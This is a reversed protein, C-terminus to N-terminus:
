SVYDMHVSIDNSFTKSKDWKPGIQGVKPGFIVGSFVGALRFSKSIGPHNELSQAAENREITERSKRETLILCLVKMEICLATVSSIEVSFTSLNLM